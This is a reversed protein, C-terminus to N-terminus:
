LRLECACNVWVRGGVVREAAESKRKAFKAQIKSWDGYYERKVGGSGPELHGSNEIIAQVLKGEFGIAGGPTSYTAKGVQFPSIGAGAPVKRVPAVPLQPKPLPKRGLLARGRSPMPAGRPPM